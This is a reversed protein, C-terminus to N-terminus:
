DGYSEELVNEIDAMSLKRGFKKTTEELLKILDEEPQIPVRVKIMRETYKTMAGNGNNESM